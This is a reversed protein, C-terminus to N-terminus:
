EFDVYCGGSDVSAMFDENRGFVYVAEYQKRSQARLTNKQDRWKQSTATSQARAVALLLSESLLAWWQTCSGQHCILSRVRTVTRLVVNPLMSSRGGLWTDADEPYYDVHDLLDDDKCHTSDLDTESIWPSIGSRSLLQLVMFQSPTSFVGRAHSRPLDGVNFAVSDMRYCCCASLLLWLWLRAMPNSYPVAPHLASARSIMGVLLILIGEDITQM